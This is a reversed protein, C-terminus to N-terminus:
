QVEEGIVAGRTARENRKQDLRVARLEALAAGLHLGLM